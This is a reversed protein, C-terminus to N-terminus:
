RDGPKWQKATKANSRSKERAREADEHSLKMMKLLKDHYASLNGAEAVETSRLLENPSRLRRGMMLENPTLGVTSHRASNYSYVAFKIWLQWDNQVDESIFMSVTDKWTRHYREVLGIMQPRYPVPNIQRAQLMMALLEIAHGTLEPAGDTLLERYVGFKLVVVEMLFSAVNEATHWANVERQLNPWWYLRAIRGYTHPGRLHGAWVSGHMEKFVVAWLAPPLVVRRGRPTDIVVLGYSEDVKMGNYTGATRLKQVLVSNKQAAVIEDDTVQLTGTPLPDDAEDQEDRQAGVRQANVM